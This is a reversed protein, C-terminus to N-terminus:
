TRRLRLALGCSGLVCVVACPEPVPAVDGYSTGFRLEDLLAEENFYSAMMLGDIKVITGVDFDIYDSAVGGGEGLFEPNIWVRYYQRGGVPDFDVRFVVFNTAGMAVADAGPLAGWGGNGIRRSWIGENIGIRIARTDQDQLELFGSGNTNPSTMLFSVYLESKGIFGSEDILQAFPGNTSVDLRRSAQGNSRRYCYGLTLLEHYTLNVDIISGNGNWTDTFGVIDPNQGDIGSLSYDDFSFGDYAILEAHSFVAIISITLLASVLTKNM